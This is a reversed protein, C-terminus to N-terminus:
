VKWQGVKFGLEELIETWERMLDGYKDSPIEYSTYGILEYKGHTSFDHVGYRTELERGEIKDYLCDYLDCIDSDPNDPDYLNPIELIPIIYKEETEEDFFVFRYQDDKEIEISVTSEPDTCGNNSAVSMVATKVEQVIEDIVIEDPIELTVKIFGM